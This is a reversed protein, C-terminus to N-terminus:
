WPVSGLTTYCFFVGIGGTYFSGSWTIFAMNLFIGTAQLRRSQCEHAHRCTEQVPIFTFANAM